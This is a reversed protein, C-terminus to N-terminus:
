IKNSDKSNNLASSTHSSMFKCQEKRSFRMSVYIREKLNINKYSNNNSIMYLKQDEKRSCKMHTANTCIYTLITNSILVANFFLISVCKKSM